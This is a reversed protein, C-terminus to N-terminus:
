TFQTLCCFRKGKNHVEDVARRLEDLSFNAAASRMGFDLGALYVADAGFRIASQMKEYNGAPSLLEVMIKIDKRRLDSNKYM